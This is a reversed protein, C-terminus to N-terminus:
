FQVQMLTEITEDDLVKLTLHVILFLQNSAQIKTIM